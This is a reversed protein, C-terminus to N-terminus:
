HMTTFLAASRFLSCARFRGLRRRLLDDEKSLEFHKSLRAIVFVIMM